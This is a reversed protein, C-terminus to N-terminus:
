VELSQISGDQGEIWASPGRLIKEFGERTPVGTHPKYVPAEVARLIGLPVPMGEGGMQSLLFGYSPDPNNANHVLVESVPVGGEGVQVVEPLFGRVRIGKNLEKGFLLPQGHKLRVTTDARTEKNTLADFVGDNFIVCNILVEIIAAGKHKFAADMVEQTLPGDMDPVRAAFTAGAGIALSMADMPRDINGHPTSKTKAGLASTPSAQGKTLGYIENNFLLVKIDPNRRMLHIFHNGGISICDGDGTGIWVAMEPKVLRLGMAVAPARGHITHFGYTNAYYPLRSSCGIGSIVAVKERPFGSNAFSSTLANFTSFNGCGACWRPDTKTRFDMKTLKVQESM